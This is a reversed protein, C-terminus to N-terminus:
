NGSDSSEKAYTTRSPLYRLKNVFKEILTQLVAFSTKETHAIQIYHTGNCVLSREIFASIYDGPIRKLRPVIIIEGDGRVIRIATNNQM